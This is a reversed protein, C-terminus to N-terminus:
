TVALVPLKEPLKDIHQLALLDGVELLGDFVIGDDIIDKELHKALDEWDSEQEGIFGVLHDCLTDEGEERGFELDAKLKNTSAEFEHLRVYEDVYAADFQDVQDKDVM